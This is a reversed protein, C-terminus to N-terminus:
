QLSFTVVANGTGLAAALRSPADVTAIPTYSYSTPFSKYFLVLTNAGYLMVDGAHVTGPQTPKGPLARPLDDHKENENLDAMNLTLPLLERFASATPSDRLVARFATSGVTIHMITSAKMPPLDAAPGPADASGGAGPRSSAASPPAPPDEFRTPPQGACGGCLVLCLAFLTATRTM